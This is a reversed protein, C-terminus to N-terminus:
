ASSVSSKLIQAMSGLSIKSMCERNAILIGYRFKIDLAKM